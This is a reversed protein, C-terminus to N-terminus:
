PQSSSVTAPVTSCGATLCPSSQVATFASAGATAALGVGAAAAGLTAVSIGSAAAVTPAIVAGPVAAIAGGAVTGAATGVAAASLSSIGNETCARKGQEDLSGASLAINIAGAADMRLTGKAHAAPIVLRGAACVYMRGGKADFSLGGQRLYIYFLQANPAAVKEGAPPTIRDVKVRTNADLIAISRDNTTLLTPAQTTIEDQEVIPYSAAGAPPMSAGGVDIPRSSSVAAIPKAPGAAARLLAATLVPILFRLRM